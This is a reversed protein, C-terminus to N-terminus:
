DRPGVFWDPQYTTFGKPSISEDLHSRLPQQHALNLATDVVRKVRSPTIGLERVTEDLHARLRRLQDRVNSEAALRQANQGAADVDVTASKGLM